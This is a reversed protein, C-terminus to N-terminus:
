VDDNCGCSVTYYADFVIISHKSIDTIHEINDSNFPRKVGEIGLYIEATINILLFDNPNNQFSLLYINCEEKKALKSILSKPSYGFTFNDNDNSWDAASGGLGHTLVTLLPAGDDVENEIKKSLDFRLENKKERKEYERDDYGIYEFTNTEDFLNKNSTNLVFKDAFVDITFTGIIFLSFAISGVILKIIKNRINM